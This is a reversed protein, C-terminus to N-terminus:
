RGSLFGWKERQSRALFPAGPKKKLALLLPCSHGSWVM